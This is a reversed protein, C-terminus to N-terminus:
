LKLIKVYFSVSSETSKYGKDIIEEITVLIPVGKNTTTCYSTNANASYSSITSDGLESTDILNRCSNYEDKSTNGSPNRPPQYTYFKSASSQLDAWDGFYLDAPAKAESQQALVVEKGDDLDLGDNAYLKYLKGKETNETPAPDPYDTGGEGSASTSIYGGRQLILSLAISGAVIIVVALLVRWGVRGGWMRLLLYFGVIVALVGGVLGIAGVNRTFLDAVATANAVVGLAVLLGSAHTHIRRRKRTDESKKHPEPNTENM